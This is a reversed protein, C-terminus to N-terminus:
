YEKKLQELQVIWNHFHQCQERLKPLGINQVVSVGATVKDYEPIEKLIRKSPATEKGGNILEPNNLGVMKELKKIAKDHELYEWDLHQVDALILTEFEYLQIYPIFHSNNIDQKLAEELVEVRRYADSIGQAQDYGPFNRPLNYLDFMTTFYCEAASDEKIWNLIDNMVKTYSRIGGRYVKGAQKDRSTLVCRSDTLIDYHVLHPCLVDEVFKQETYGEVVVHLRIM